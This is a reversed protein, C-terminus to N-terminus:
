QETESQKASQGRLQLYRLIAVIVGGVPYAILGGSPNWSGGDANGFGYIVIALIVAMFTPAVAGTLPSWDESGPSFKHILVSFLLLILTAGIIMGM